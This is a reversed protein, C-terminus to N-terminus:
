RCPSAAMQQELGAPTTFSRTVVVVCSTGVTVQELTLGSATTVKTQGQALVPHVASALMVGLVASLVMLLAVRIKM